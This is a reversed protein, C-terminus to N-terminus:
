NNLSAVSFIVSFAKCYIVASGLTVIDVGAPILYNQDGRNGKLKELEVTAQSHLAASTAPDSHDALLVYLDPGNTVSFDELRLIHSGDPLRYIAARGSGSYSSSGDRFMGEKILLPADADAMMDDEKDMDAMMHDEKDMDDTMDDEKDMDATMDDEKDMDATMGNDKDMDAMMDDEKDMSDMMDDDTQAVVVPFPESVTKNIFLPSAFWWALALVPLLLVVATGIVLPNRKNM